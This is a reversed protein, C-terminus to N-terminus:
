LLIICLHLYYYTYFWVIEDSEIVYYKVKIQMEEFIYMCRWWLFALVNSFCKWSCWCFFIMQYSLFCTFLNYFLRWRGEEGEPWPTRTHTLLFYTCKISLVPNWQWKMKFLNLFFYSSILYTANNKLYVANFQM